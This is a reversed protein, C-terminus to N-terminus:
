ESASPTPSAQSMVQATSFFNPQAASAAQVIAQPDALGVDESALICLRRAIFIPDAGGEGDPDITYVGNTSDPAIALVRIGFQALERAAPLTLAGTLVGGLMSLGAVALWHRRSLLPASRATSPTVLRNPNM